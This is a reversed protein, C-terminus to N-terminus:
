RCAVGGFRDIIYCEHSCYKRNRKGYASFTKGCAPCTRPAKAQKVQRLQENLADITQLSAAIAAFDEAFAPDEPATEYLAKGVKQYLQNLKRKEENLKTQISYTEGVRQVSSKTTQGLQKLTKGLQEFAM